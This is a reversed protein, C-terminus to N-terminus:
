CRTPASSNAPLAEPEGARREVRDNPRNRVIQCTAYPRDDHSAVPGPPGEITELRHTRLRRQAREDKIFRESEVDYVRCFATRRGVGFADRYFIYGVFHIPESIRAARDRTQDAPIRSMVQDFAAHEHVYYTLPSYAGKEGLTEPIRQMDDGYDPVPPLIGVHIKATITIGKASSGGVNSMEYKISPINGVGGRGCATDRHIKRIILKPPHSATFEREMAKVTGRLKLGQWWGLVVLACTFLALLGDTIKVKHGLIFTFESAEESAKQRERAREEDSKPPQFLQIVIPPQAAGNSEQKGKDQQEVASEAKKQPYVKPAEHALANACCLTVVFLAARTLM